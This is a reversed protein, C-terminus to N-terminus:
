GHPPKPVNVASGPTEQLGDRNRLDKQQDYGEPAIEGHKLALLLEFKSPPKDPEAIEIGGRRRSNPHATDSGIRGSRRPGPKEAETQSM